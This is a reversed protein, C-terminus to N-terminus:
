KKFLSKLFDVIQQLLSTSPVEPATPQGTTPEPAPITVTDGGATTIVTPPKNECETLQDKILKIDADYKSKDVFEGNQVRVLVDIAVKMSDQNSLDYGKYMNGVANTILNSQDIFGAYGNARNRPFLYYGWHLHPGTSNGTNNSHAILQGENVSDGVKVVFDHLHGLVSGEKDNEVKIYNGYGTPDNTAEIIKGNHPALVETGMPLGYDLGDHGLLGWQKYSDPNVGFGQTLPWNAAFPKRM